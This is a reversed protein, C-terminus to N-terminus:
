RGRRLVQGPLAGTHESADIVVEGNVIVTSIGLEAARFAATYGGPGGGIELHGRRETRCCLRDAVFAGGQRFRRCRFM